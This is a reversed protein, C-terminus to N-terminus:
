MTQSSCESDITVNALDEDCLLWPPFILYIMENKVSLKPIQMSAAVNYCTVCKGSLRSVLIIFLMYLLLLVCMGALYDIM